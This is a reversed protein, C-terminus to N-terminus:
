FHKNENERDVGHVVQPYATTSRGTMQYILTASWDPHKGRMRASIGGESVAGQSGILIPM